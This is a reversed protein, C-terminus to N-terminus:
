ASCSDFYLADYYVCAFSAIIFFQFIIMSIVPIAVSDYRLLKLDM